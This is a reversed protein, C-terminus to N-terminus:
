ALPALPIAGAPLPLEATNLVFALMTYYGCVALIDLATAHSFRAVMADFAPGSAAGNWVTEHAFDHIVAEDADLAGPRENRSLADIVPERLGSERAVRSHAAWEYDSSWRRATVLIAVEVLAQPLGTGFRLHEGLAQVRHALEPNHILALFPGKLAGRPGATITDAVEQQRATMESRELVKFRTM